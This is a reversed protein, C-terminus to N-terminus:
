VLDNFDYLNLKVEANTLLKDLKNSLNVIDVNQFMSSLETKSLLNDGEADYHSFISRIHSDDHIAESCCYSQFKNKCDDISYCHADKKLLTNEPCTSNTLRKVDDSSCKTNFCCKEHNCRNSNDGLLSAPSYDMENNCFLFNFDNRDYEKDVYNNAKDIKFINSILLEKSVDNYSDIESESDTISYLIAKIESMNKSKLQEYSYNPRNDCEYIKCGSYQTGTIGKDRGIIRALLPFANEGFGEIVKNNLLFTIMLGLLFYIIYKLFSNM